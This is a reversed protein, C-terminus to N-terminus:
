LLLLKIAVISVKNLLILVRQIIVMFTRLMIVITVINNAVMLVLAGQISLIVKLSNDVMIIAKDNSNHGSDSLSCDDKRKSSAKCANEIQEQVMIFWVLDNVCYTAATFDHGNMAFKVKWSELMMSYYIRKQKM